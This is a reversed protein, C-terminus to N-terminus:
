GALFLSAPLSNIGSASVEIMCICVFHAAILEISICGM